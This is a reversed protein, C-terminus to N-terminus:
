DHRAVEVKLARALEILDGAFAEIKALNCYRKWDGWSIEDAASGGPWEHEIAAIGGGWPLFDLLAWATKVDLRVIAAPAPHKWTISLTGKHDAIEAISDLLVWATAHDYRKAVSSWLYRLLVELREGRWPEGHWFDAKVHSILNEHFTFSVRRNQLQIM